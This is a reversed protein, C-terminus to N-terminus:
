LRERDKVVREWDYKGVYYCDFGADQNNTAPDVIHGYLNVRNHRRGDIFGLEGVFDKGPELGADKMEQIILSMRKACTMEKVGAFQYWMETARDQWKQVVEEKGVFRGQVVVADCSNVGIGVGVGFVLVSMMVLVKFDM